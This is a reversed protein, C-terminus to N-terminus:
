GCTQSPLSKVHYKKGLAIEMKGPKFDSNVSAQPEGRVTNNYDHDNVPLSITQNSTNQEQCHFFLKYFNILHNVNPQFDM